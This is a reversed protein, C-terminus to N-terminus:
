RLRKSMMGFSTYWYRYGISRYILRAPNHINTATWGYQAGRKVVEEIGLHYLVKGIGKRRYDPIVYPVTGGMTRGYEDTWTEVEELWGVALADVLAVFTVDGGFTGVKDGTDTRRLNEFQETTFREIAIGEERLKEIKEKIEPQLRFGELSGGLYVGYEYPIRNL